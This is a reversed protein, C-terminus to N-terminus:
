SFRELWEERPAFAIGAAAQVILGCFIEAIEDPGYANINNLYWDLLEDSSVVIHHIAIDPEVNSSDSQFYRQRVVDACARRYAQRAPHEEPIDLLLRFARQNQQVYRYWLAAEERPSQAPAAAERSGNVLDLIINMLLDEKDRFHRYFTSSGTGARRALQRISVRDYGIELALDIFTETLKKRTRAMRRDLKPM